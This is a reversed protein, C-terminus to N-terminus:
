VENVNVMEVLKQPTIAKIPSYRIIRSKVRFCLLLQVPLIIVATVIMMLLTIDIDGMWIDFM